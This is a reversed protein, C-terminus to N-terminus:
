IAPQNKVQQAMSSEISMCQVSCGVVATSGLVLRLLKGFILNM